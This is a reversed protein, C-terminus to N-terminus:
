FEVNVIQSSEKEAPAFKWIKVAEEAAQVLVPHGGVIEVARVSGDPSIHVQLKVTGHLSMNAALTPYHPEHRETVKREKQNVAGPKVIVALHLLFPNIKLGTRRAADPNLQMRIQEGMKVLGIVGGDQAFWDAEGVTLINTDDVEDLISHLRSTPLDAIYLISCNQIEADTPFLMIHISKSNSKKGDLMKQLFEGTTRNGLFGIVIEPKEPPWEVYKILNFIFAARVAREDQSQSTGIGSLPVILALALLIASKRHGARMM